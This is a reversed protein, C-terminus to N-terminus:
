EKGSKVVLHFPTRGLQDGVHADDPGLGLIREITEVSSYPSSVVFHLPTWRLGGEEAVNVANTYANYIDELGSYWTKGAECTLHLPLRGDGNM